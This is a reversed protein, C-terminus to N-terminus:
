SIWKLDSNTAELSLEEVFAEEKSEFLLFPVSHAENIYFGWGVWRKCRESLNDILEFPVGDLPLGIAWVQDPRDFQCQSYSQDLSSLQIYKM